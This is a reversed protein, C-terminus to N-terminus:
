FILYPLMLWLVQRHSGTRVPYVEGQPPNVAPRGHATQKPPAESGPDLAHLGTSNLENLWLQALTPLHPWEKVGLEYLLWRTHEADYPYEEPGM